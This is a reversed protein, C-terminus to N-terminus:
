NRLPKGTQLLSWMRAQTKQEGCLSLFAERELDLVYQESVWQPRTLEGGCMVYALKEALHRDYESIYGGAEFMFTGVRLSAFVDRGAVYIKERAPSRYGSKAMHLAERKAEALLLDGNMVIRDASGVIGMDRAEPASTAVKAQGVQLFAKQLFPLLEANETRMAPNILRRLMEKTGGGAPIIGAGLEVLGIYTESAAVVRSAHMVIECGGGLVRGFPAVVVPKPSYRMRMNLEQLRRAAADLTDWMGQQAAIVVMFLNAGGACFDGAENGIVLADFDEELCNLGTEIMSFIDEDLANVKTHFEVCAVGGGLDHLSAGANRNIVRTGKLTVAATIPREEVHRKSSVDYAAAKVGNQYRYFTDLGSALMDSVWPAPPYGEQKMRDATERVGLMDWLEFPGAEHGFGWRVADDLPKVSDAVEPLLSSAYQIGQFVLTRVLKAAKDEEGLMVKLRQGLGEVSRAKGVSEFRPKGPPVHELTNLDLPWFEKNGDKRVEKYFGVGTKNGLWKRDVMANLLAAPREAALYQQGLADHPIAPGLNRGVHEWVDIGILDALRFTATKPRGMLPGTLNDVEDVTYGNELIYNMGFTATGFFVRNAIFNPTDKCLVVGKGLDRECFRRMYDVVDQLTDEGPILELLKLYRPPNFFHTGLFHKRFGDSRGEVIAHIPIGSTNTSVISDPARDQDIRAMLAQKIALDEVVAELIWDAQAVAAFDDELNGLAVLSESLPSMLSAPKAKLSRSWGEQVVQNRARQDGVPAGAPVIDLLTVPVGANALHAAIAAGMTGSGIVVAKDIRYSM